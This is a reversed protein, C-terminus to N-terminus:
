VGSGVTRACEIVSLSGSRGLRLQRESSFLTVEGNKVDIVDGEHVMSIQHNWLSMKMSGTEDKILANSICATTGYRTYVIKSEPIELVEAKLSVKKMGVKLDGIKSTVGEFNKVSSTRALITETYSKLQNQGQLIAISIPFQAIVNRTRKRDNTFLFIASNKTRKRCKITLEACESGEHNWAEIIRNFFESSDVKHRMAIRALNELIRGDKYSPMSNLPRGRGKWIQKSMYSSKWETKKV